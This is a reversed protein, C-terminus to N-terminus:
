PELEKKKYRVLLLTLLSTSFYLSPSSSPSPSPSPSPSSSSSLRTSSYSSSPSFLSLGFTAVLHLWLLFEDIYYARKYSSCSVFAFSLSLFLLLLLLLLLFFSYDLMNQLFSTSDSYKDQWDVVVPLQQLFLIHVYLVSEIVDVYMDMRLLSVSIRSV